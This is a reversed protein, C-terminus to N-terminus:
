DWNLPDVNHSEKFPLFALRLDVLCLNYISTIRATSRLGSFREEMLKRSPIRYRGRFEQFFFKAVEQDLTSGECKAVISEEVRDLLRNMDAMLSIQQRDWVERMPPSVTAPVYQDMDSNEASQLGYRSIHRAERKCIEHSARALSTFVLSHFRGSGPKYHLLLKTLVKFQLEHIYDDVTFRYKDRKSSRKVYRYYIVRALQVTNRLVFEAHSRQAQHSAHLRSLLRTLEKKYKVRSKDRPSKGHNLRVLSAVLRIQITREKQWELVASETAEPQYKQFAGNLHVMDGACEPPGGKVVDVELKDCHDGKSEYGSEDDFNFEEGEIPQRATIRLKKRSM